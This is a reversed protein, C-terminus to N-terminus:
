GQHLLRQDGRERGPRAPLGAKKLTRPRGHYGRGDLNIPKDAPGRVRGRPGGPLRQFAKERGPDDCSRWARRHHTLFTTHRCHDSWYTDIMRIETLTPDRHEPPSTIGASPWIMTMWPWATSRSSPRGRGGRGHRHLRPLTEVTDPTAYSSACPTRSAGADAERSEVPNIVHKKIRAVETLPPSGTLLYVKATRVAPRDGQGLRSASGAAPTQGSTMSGPSTNRPSSHVDATGHAPRICLARGAPARFVCHAACRAFLASASTRGRRLPQAVASGTCARQNASYHRIERCCSSPRRGCLSPKKEVYIRKVSM